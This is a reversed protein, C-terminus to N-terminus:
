SAIKGSLILQSALPSTVNIDAEVPPISPATPVSGTIKSLGTKGAAPAFQCGLAFQDTTPTITGLTADAIAWSVPGPIPAPAGTADEPTVTLNYKQTTLITASFAM